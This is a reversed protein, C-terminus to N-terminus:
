FGEKKRSEYHPHRRNYIYSKQECTSDRASYGPRVWTDFVPTNTSFGNTEVVFKVPLGWGEAYNAADHFSGISGAMDGVFCWCTPGTAALGCAIPLCGNLISSTFFRHEVSNIHMSHGAMIQRKVEEPPIGKLLAHYHSRWTSFVWDTPKVEKFIEILADENGGSLHVPGSINGAQFEQKIDNEFAILEAANM